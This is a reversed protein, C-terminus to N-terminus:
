ELGIQDLPGVPVMMLLRHPELPLQVTTAV